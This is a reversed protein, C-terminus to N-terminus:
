FTLYELLYHISYLDSQKMYACRGLGLDRYEAEGQFKMRTTWGVIKVSSGLKRDITCLVAIDAKCKDKTPFILGGTPHWTTKVQITYGDREFDKVGGDGGDGEVMHIPLELLAGVAAEGLIGLLDNDIRDLHTAYLRDVAGIRRMPYYRGKAMERYMELEIANFEALIHREHETLIPMM